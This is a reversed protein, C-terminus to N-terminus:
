ELGNIAVKVEHLGKGDQFLLWFLTM